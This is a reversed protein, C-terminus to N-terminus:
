PSQQYPHYQQEHNLSEISVFNCNLMRIKFPGGNNMKEAATRKVGVLKKHFWVTGMKNVHINNNVTAIWCNSRRDRTQMTRIIFSDLLVASM